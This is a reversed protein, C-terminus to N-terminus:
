AAQEFQVQARARRPRRVPVDNRHSAREWTFYEETSLYYRISADWLSILGSEVAAVVIEKRKNNWRMTGRPPLDDLTLYKRDPTTTKVRQLKQQRTM